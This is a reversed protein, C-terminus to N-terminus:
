LAITQLNKDASGEFPEWASVNFVVHGTGSFRNPRRRTEIIEHMKKQCPGISLERDNVLLAFHDTRASSAGFRVPRSVSANSFRHSFIM